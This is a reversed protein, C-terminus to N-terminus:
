ANTPNPCNYYNQDDTKLLVEEASIIQYITAAAVILIFVSSKTIM